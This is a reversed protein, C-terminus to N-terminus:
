TTIEPRGAHRTWREARLWPRARAFESELQQVIRDAAPLEGRIAQGELRECLEQMARLGLMGCSSKLSHAVAEIKAEDGATLAAALEALREPTSREFIEFLSQLV